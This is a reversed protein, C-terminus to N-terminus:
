VAFRSFVFIKLPCAFGVYRRVFSNHYNLRFIDILISDTVTKVRKNIAGIPFFYIYALISIISVSVLQEGAKSLVGKTQMASLLDRHNKVSLQLNRYNRQLIKKKNRENNVYKVFHVWKAEEVFNDRCYFM